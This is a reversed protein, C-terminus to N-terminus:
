SISIAGDTRNNISSFLIFLEFRKNLVFIREIINVYIAFERIILNIM